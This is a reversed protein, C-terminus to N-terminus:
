PRHQSSGLLSKDLDQVFFFSESQIKNDQKEKNITNFNVLNEDWNWPTSPNMSFIDCYQGENEEDMKKDSYFRDIDFLGPKVTRLEFSQCGILDPDSTLSSMRVPGLSEYYLPSYELEVKRFDNLAISSNDIAELSYPSNDELKEGQDVGFSSSSKSIELPKSIIITPRGKKRKKCARKKLSKWRNKVQNETRGLLFKSIESWRNGLEEQKELLIRDEKESWKTKILSPNLHNFWRERCQKGKRVPLSDHLRDNLEKAVSSWNQAGRFNVLDQLALDEEPKWSNRSKYIDQIDIDDLPRCLPFYQKKQTVRCPVMWVETTISFPEPLEM